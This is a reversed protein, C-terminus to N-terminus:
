YHRPWPTTPRRRQRQILMVCISRRPLLYQKWMDRYGKFTSPRKYQQVYPFYISDVFGGITALTTPKRETVNERLWKEARGQVERPPRKLRQHEPKVPELRQNQQKRVMVNNELINDRYRINWWDNRPYVYGAQKKM